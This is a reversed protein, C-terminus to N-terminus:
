WKKKPCDLISYYSRHKMRCGCAKCTNYSTLYECTKCIKRRRKREEASARLEDVTFDPDVGKIKANILMQHDAISIETHYEYGCSCFLVGELNHIESERLLLMRDCAPCKPMHPSKECKDVTKETKAMRTMEELYEQKKEDIYAIVDSLVLANQEMHILLTLCEQIIKFNFASLSEDIKEYILV